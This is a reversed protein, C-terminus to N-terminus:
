CTGKFYKSEFFESFKSNYRHSLNEANLYWSIQKILTSKKMIINKM